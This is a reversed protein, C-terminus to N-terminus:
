HKMKNLKQLTFPVYSALFLIIAAPVAYKWVGTGQIIYLNFLGHLFVAALFGWLFRRQVITIGVFGAVLSHLFVAGLFRIASLSALELFPSTEFGSLVLTNELAAFGLGGIIMYLPIDIPENTVARKLVSFRVVSYKLLEEVLAVGFFLYLPFRIHAPLPLTTSFSSAQSEILIAPLTAIMGLFFVLLVMPNPEPHSDKRLFYLLWIVSPGIGFLFLLVYSM